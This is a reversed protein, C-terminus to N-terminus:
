TVFMLQILDYVSKQLFQSIQKSLGQWEQHTALAPQPSYCVTESKKELVNKEFLVQFNQQSSPILCERHITKEAHAIMMGM